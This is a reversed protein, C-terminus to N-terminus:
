APDGSRSTARSALRTASQLAPWRSYVGRTAGRRSRRKRRLRRLLVPLPTLPILCCFWYPVTIIRVPYGSGLLREYKFGLSM